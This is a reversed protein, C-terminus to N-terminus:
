KERKFIAKKNSDIDKLILTDSVKVCGSVGLTYDYDNWLSYNQSYYYIGCTTTKETYFYTLTLKEAFLTDGGISKWVSVKGYPGCNEIEQAANPEPQQSSINKKSCSVFTLVLIFHLIITKM